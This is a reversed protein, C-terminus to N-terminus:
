KRQVVKIKPKILINKLKSYYINETLVEEGVVDSMEGKEITHVEM